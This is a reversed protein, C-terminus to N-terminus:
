PEEKSERGDDDELYNKGFLYVFQETTWGYEEMACRQGERKLRDDLEANAHVGNPGQHCTDHCLYVWLGSMKSRARLKGGMDEHFIEHRNLGGHSIGNQKCNWCCYENHGPIISPAYGNRDLENM